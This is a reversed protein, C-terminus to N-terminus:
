IWRLQNRKPDWVAAAVNVAFGRGQRGARVVYCGDERKRTVDIVFCGDLVALGKAAVKHLWTLGLKITLYSKTITASESYSYERESSSLIDPDGWDDEILIRQTSYCSTAQRYNCSELATYAEGQLRNHLRERLKISLTDVRCRGLRRQDKDDRKQQYVVEAVAALQKPFEDEDFRNYQKADAWGKRWKRYIKGCTHKPAENGREALEDELAVPVVHDLFVLCGNRLVAVRHTENQCRVPLVALLDAPDFPKGRNRDNHDGQNRTRKDRSKSSRKKSRPTDFINVASTM